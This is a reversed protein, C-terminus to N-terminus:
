CKLSFFLFWGAVMINATDYSSADAGLKRILTDRNSMYDNMDPYWGFQIVAVTMEPEDRLFVQSNSPLPTNAQNIRPLYFGMTMNCLSNRDILGNNLNQLRTLVPATMEIKQNRDNKGSIYGFLNMFMNNQYNGMKVCIDRVSTSAWKTPAYRRIETQSDIQRVVEYTPNEIAEVFSQIALFAIIILKLSFEQKKM